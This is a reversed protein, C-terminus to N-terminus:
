ASSNSVSGPRCAIFWPHAHNATSTTCFLPAHHERKHEPHHQFPTEAAASFTSGSLTLDRSGRRLSSGFLTLSTFSRMAKSHGKMEAHNSSCIRVTTSGRTCFIIGAPMLSRNPSTCRPVSANCMDLREEGTATSSLAYPSPPLRVFMHMTPLMSWRPSATTSTSHVPPRTTAVATAMRPVTIMSSALSSGVGGQNQPSRM